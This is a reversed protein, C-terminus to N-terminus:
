IENTSLKTEINLKKLSTIMILNLWVYLIYKYIRNKNTETAFVELFIMFINVAVIDLCLYVLTLTTVIIVQQKNKKEWYLNTKEQTYRLYQAKVVLEGALVIQENWTTDYKLTYTESASTIM